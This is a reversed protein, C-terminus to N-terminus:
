LIMIQRDSYLGCVMTVDTIDTYYLVSVLNHDVTLSIVLVWFLIGGLFIVCLLLIIVDIFFMHLMHLVWKTLLILLMLLLNVGELTDWMSMRFLVVGLGLLM